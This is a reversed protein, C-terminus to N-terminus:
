THSAHNPFRRDTDIWYQSILNGTQKSITTAALIGNNKEIVKVSGINDTDCTIRVRTLGLARAKELTLSLILTGYGQRRKSSRIVYGIHGGHHELAPTLSHRVVSRGLIVQSSDIMWYTSMPVMGSQLNIGKSQSDLDEIFATFDNRALPSQFFDEGVQYDEELLEM